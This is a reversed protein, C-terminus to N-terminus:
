RSLRTRGVDNGEGREWLVYVVVGSLRDGSEYGCSDYNVCRASHWGPEESCNDLRKGERIASVLSVCIRRERHDEDQLSAEGSKKATAGREPLRKGFTPISNPRARFGAIASAWM